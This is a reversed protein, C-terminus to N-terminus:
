GSPLGWRPGERRHHGQGQEVMVVSDIGFWVVWVRSAASRWSWVILRQSIAPLTTRVPTSVSTAALAKGPLVTLCAELVLAAPCAEEPALCV